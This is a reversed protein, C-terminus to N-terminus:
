LLQLGQAPWDHLFNIVTLDSCVTDCTAVHVHMCEEVFPDPGAKGRRQTGPYIKSMTACPLWSIYELIESDIGRNGRGFLGAEALKSPM